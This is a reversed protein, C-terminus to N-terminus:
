VPRWDNNSLDAVGIQREGKRLKAKLAREPLRAKIFDQM